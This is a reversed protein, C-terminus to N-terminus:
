LGNSRVANGRHTRSIWALLFGKVKNKKWFHEGFLDCLMGDWVIFGLFTFVTCEDISCKRRNFPFFVVCSILLQSRLLRLSLFNNTTLWYLVHRATTKTGVCFMVCIWKLFSTHSNNENKKRERLYDTRHLHAETLTNMSCHAGFHRWEVFLDFNAKNLAIKIQTTQNTETGKKKKKKQFFIIIAKSHM